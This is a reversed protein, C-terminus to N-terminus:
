TFMEEMVARDYEESGKKEIEKELCAKLEELDPKKYRRAFALAIGSWTWNVYYNGSTLEDFIRKAEVNFNLEEDNMSEVKANYIKELVKKVEGKQSDASFNPDDM